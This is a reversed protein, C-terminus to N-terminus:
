AKPPVLNWRGGFWCWLRYANPKIQWELSELEKDSLKWQHKGLLKGQDDCFHYGKACKACKYPVTFVEKYVVPNKPKMSRPVRYERGEEVDLNYTKEPDEVCRFHSADKGPQILTVEELTFTESPPSTYVIPCIKHANFDALMDFSVKKVRPISYTTNKLCSKLNSVAPLKYGDRTYTKSSSERGKRIQKNGLEALYEKSESFHKKYVSLM